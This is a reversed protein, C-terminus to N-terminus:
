HKQIKNRHQKGNEMNRTFRSNKRLNKSFVTQGTSLLQCTCGFHTGILRTQILLKHNTHFFSFPIAIVSYENELPIV